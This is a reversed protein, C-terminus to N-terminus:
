WDRWPRLFSTLSIPRFNKPGGYFGKWAQTYVCGQVMHSSCLWNGPLCLFDQGPLHCPDGTGIIVLSPIDWGNRSKQIPCIFCNCM